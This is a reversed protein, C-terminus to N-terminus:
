GFGETRDEVPVEEGLGGSYMSTEGFQTKKRILWNWKFIKKPGFM